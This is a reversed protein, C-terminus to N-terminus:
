QMDVNLPGRACPCPPRVCVMASDAMHAAAVGHRTPLAARPSPRFRAKRADVAALIRPSEANLAVYLCYLAVMIFGEWRGVAGRLSTLM